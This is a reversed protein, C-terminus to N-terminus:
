LAATHAPEVARARKPCTQEDTDRRREGDRRDHHERDPRRERAAREVVVGPAREVPLDLQDDGLMRRVRQRGALGREAAEEGGLLLPQRDQRRRLGLQQEGALCGGLQARVPCASPVTSTRPSGNM